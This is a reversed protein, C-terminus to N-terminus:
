LWPLFFVLYCSAIRAHCLPKILFFFTESTWLSTLELLAMRVIPILSGASPVHPGDHVPQLLIPTAHPWWPM